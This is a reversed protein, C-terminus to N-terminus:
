LTADREIKLEIGENRKVALAYSMCLGSPKDDNILIREGTPLGFVIHDYRIHNEKLFTETQPRADETRSTLLLIYDEAPLSRLFERSNELVTDKGYIKYGNHVALTGDIDVLWTHSLTSLVMRAPNKETGEM